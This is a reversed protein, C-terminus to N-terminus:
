PRTGFSFVTKSRYTDGPKLITSPFGPQNPSNPFHQTELCFGWRHRYITGDKGTATGDLFNGSYFQVGPETTAVDLTRGSEPEYVTAAKMLGSDTRDIVFNHDYGGARALQVHPAAISAGIATPSRFDFSTDEVSTIEGTPIFTADVPTYHSANLTLVHGLIDRRGGTLNFYSHQTLNQPTARDTTVEYEVILANSETLTYTVTAHLTGPYGEEGDPSTLSLTVGVGTDNQFPRAAWVRKDFGVLGGHLHNPGNNAALKYVTGDLTFRANAIRNGYRGVVAGFYRRNQLYGDLSSFGLVIDELRGHRDPTALSSIIAGYTLVKVRLGSSNSLTYQEVHTGDPITGFPAEIVASPNHGQPSSARFPFAGPVSPEESWGLLRKVDAPM